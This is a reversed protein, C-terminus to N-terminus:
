LSLRRPEVEHVSNSLEQNSPMKGTSSGMRAIAQGIASVGAELDAAWGTPPLKVSLRQVFAHGEEVSIVEGAESFEQGAFSTLVRASTRDPSWLVGQGVSNGDRYYGVFVHGDKRSVVFPGDKKGNAYTGKYVTGDPFATEGEGHKMGEAWQGVYEIGDAWRKTGWGHEHGAADRQGKYTAEIAEGSSIVANAIANVYESYLNVVLENDTLNTFRCTKLRERNVDIRHGHGEQEPAIHRPVAADSSIDFLKPPLGDLQAKLRPYYAVRAIAETAVASEFQCWGRHEYPRSNYFEDLRVARVVGSLPLPEAALSRLTATLARRSKFEVRWMGHTGDYELRSPPHGRAALAARLEPGAQEPVGAAMAVCDLGAPRPPVTKLRMVCTGLPSAFMDGM